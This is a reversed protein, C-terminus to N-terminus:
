RIHGPNRMINYFHRACSEVRSEDDVAAYAGHRFVNYRRLACLNSHHITFMPQHVKHPLNLACRISLLLSHNPPLTNSASLLAWSEVFCRQNAIHADFTIMFEFFISASSFALSSASTTLNRSAVLLPGDYNRVRSISESFGTCSRSGRSSRMVIHVVRNAITCLTLPIFKQTERLINLSMDVM